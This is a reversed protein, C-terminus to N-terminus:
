GGLIYVNVDYLVTSGQFMVQTVVGWETPFNLQRVDTNMMYTHSGVFKGKNYATVVLPSGGPGMTAYGAAAHASLLMFGTSPPPPANRSGVTNSQFSLSAYCGAGPCAYPAFVVDNGMMWEQHKFGPGAGDWAFPNVYFFGTWNLNAYGNPMPRPSLANPMDGFNIVGQASASVVLALLTTLLILTRKM